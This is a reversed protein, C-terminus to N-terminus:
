QPLCDAPRVTVNVPTVEGAASLSSVPEPMLAAMLQATNGKEMTFIDGKSPPFTHIRGQTVGYLGNVTGFQTELEYPLAFQAFAPFDQPQEPTWARYSEIYSPASADGDTMRFHLEGLLESFGDARWSVVELAVRRKGDETVVADSTRLVLNAKCKVVENRDGVTVNFTPNSNITFEAGPPFEAMTDQWEGAMTPIALLGLAACAILTKKLM